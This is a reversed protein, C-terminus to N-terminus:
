KWRGPHFMLHASVMTATCASTIEIRPQYNHFYTPDWWNARRREMSVAWNLRSVYVNRELVAWIRGFERSHKCWTIYVCTTRKRNRKYFLVPFCATIDCGHKCLRIYVRFCVFWLTRLVCSIKNIYIYVRHSIQNAKCRAQLPSFASRSSCGGSRAARNSYSDTYWYWRFHWWDLLTCEVILLWAHSLQHMIHDDTRLM